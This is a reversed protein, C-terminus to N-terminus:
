PTWSEGVEIRAIRYTTVFSAGDDGTETDKRVVFRLARHEEGREVVEVRFTADSLHPSEPEEYATESIYVVEYARASNAVASDLFAPYEDIAAGELLDPPAAAQARGPTSVAEAVAATLRTTVGAANGADEAVVSLTLSPPTQPGRVVWVTLVYALGAVIWLAVLFRLAAGARTLWRRGVPGGVVRVVRLQEGARVVRIGAVNRGVSQGRGPRNRSRWYRVGWVVTVILVVATVILGVRTLTTGGAYASSVPVVLAFVTGLVAPALAIVLDVFAATAVRFAGADPLPGPKPLLGRESLIGAAFSEPPGMTGLVDDIRGDRAAEALYSSLEARTEAAEVAGLVELANELRTLYDEIRAVTSSDGSPNDQTPNM